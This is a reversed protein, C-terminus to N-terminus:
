ATRARLEAQYIKWGPWWTKHWRHIRASVSGPKAAGRCRISCNECKHLKMMNEVMDRRRPAGTNRETDRIVLGDPAMLEELTERTEPDRVYSQLVSVVQEWGSSTAVLFDDLFHLREEDPLSTQGRNLEAVSTATCM